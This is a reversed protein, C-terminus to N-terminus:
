ASLTPPYAQLAVQQGFAQLFFLGNGVKGWDPYITGAGRQLVEASFQAFQTGHMDRWANHNCLDHARARISDHGASGHIACRTRDWHAAGQQAPSLMGRPVGATGSGPVPSTCSFGRFPLTAAAHIPM